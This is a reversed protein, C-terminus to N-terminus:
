ETRGAVTKALIFRKLLMENKGETYPVIARERPSIDYEDLLMHLKARILQLDSEAVVVSIIREEVSGHLDTPKM